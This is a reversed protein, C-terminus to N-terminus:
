IIEDKLLKKLMNQQGLIWVIDYNDFKLYIHPETIAYGNKELGLVLCQWEKRFNFERMSKNFLPSNKNVSIALTYFSDPKGNKSLIFERLTIRECTCVLAGSNNMSHELVDLQKKRGLFVLEANNPIVFDGSPFSYSNEKEIVQIINCGYTKRIELKKLKKNIFSSNNTVKYTVVYYEEDMWGAVTEAGEKDIWKEQIEGNEKKLIARKKKVHKVNLNVLFEAEFRVYEELLWNSTSILYILIVVILVKFLSSLVTFTSLVVYIFSAAIFLKIFLLMLLPLHNGRNKFWLNAFLEPKGIKNLIIARLFPAAMVFCIVMAILENFPSPLKDGLLPLIFLSCIMYIAIILITNIMTRTFYSNFFASWDNDSNENDLDDKAYWELHLLVKKPLISELKECAFNASKMFFPTTFTTIVSVAVIIPYLFESILGLKVGLSAVIFSFEGIQALSFGVNMATKLKKGSLLVGITSFLVLGIVVMFFIITIPGIYKILLTPEVMMGVSVFFIAGFLDKIPKILEEIKKASVTEAILSGMLFAGLASSFGMSVALAVMGLCLGMSVVVLMEDNALEKIKNYFKPIMYMGLVFWLVLYFILRIIQYALEMDSIESTAALTSIIVMMLIGVIDEVILVGFTLNTFDFKKLGLDEFSKFVISTSSMSILAGLFASDTTSWGMMQGGFYGLSMMGLVVMFTTIFASSGVKKLKYFSFELGLAFLLIIVGIESWTQVSVKDAVSPFYKFNPGTIFGAVIYGLVLPQKLKKCLIISVGAVMLIMALDLILNPLHGVIDGVKM